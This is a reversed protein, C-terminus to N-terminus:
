DDLVGNRLLSSWAEATMGDHHDAGERDTGEPSPLLSDLRANGDMICDVAALALFREYAQRVMKLRCATNSM